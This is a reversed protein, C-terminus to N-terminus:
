ILKKVAKHFEGEIDYKYRPTRDEDLMDLRIPFRWTLGYKHHTGLLWQSPPTFGRMRAVSYENPGIVSSNVIIEGNARDLNAKNHFHGFAFYSLSTGKSGFLEGWESVARKIGYWPLGRYGPIDDGHAILWNFNNIEKVWFFSRPIDFKINPQRQLMLALQNYAIYDWNLIAKNKFEPKKSFRGHNGVVGIFEISEFVQALELFAQALIYTLINVSDVINTEGTEVLEKHIIGTVWDGLGIIHLKPFLYGRLKNKCLDIVTDIIGQIRSTMIKINYNNIGMIQDGFVTENAHFDSLLLIPEEVTVDEIVNPHPPVPVEPMVKINKSIVELIKEEVVNDKVIANYKKKYYDLDRKVGQLKRDYDISEEVSMEQVPGKRDPSNYSLRLNHCKSEISKVTRDCDFTQNFDDIFLLPSEGLEGVHKKLYEVEADTWPRGM